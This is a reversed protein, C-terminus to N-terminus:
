KEKYITVGCNQSRNFTNIFDSNNAYQSYKNNLKDKCTSLSNNKICDCMEAAAKEAQEDASDPECSSYTFLGALFIVILPLIRKKM